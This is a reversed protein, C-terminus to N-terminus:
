ADPEFLELSRMAQEMVRRNEDLDGPPDVGLMLQLTQGGVYAVWAQV